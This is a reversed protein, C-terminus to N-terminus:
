LMSIKQGSKKNGDWMIVVSCKKKVNVWRKVPWIVDWRHATESVSGRETVPCKGWQGNASNYNYCQLPRRQTHSKGCKPNNGLSLKESTLPLSGDPAFCFGM